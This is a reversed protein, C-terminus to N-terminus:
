SPRAALSLDMGASRYAGLIAAGSIGKGYVEPRTQKRSPCPM